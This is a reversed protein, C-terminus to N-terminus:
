QNPQFNTNAKLHAAIAKDTERPISTEKIAALVRLKRHHSKSIRVQPRPDNPM